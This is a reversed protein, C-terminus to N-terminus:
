KKLMINESSCRRSKPGHEIADERETPHNCPSNPIDSSRRSSILSCGFKTAAAVRPQAPEATSV